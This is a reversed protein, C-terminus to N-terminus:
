NLLPIRMILAMWCSIIKFSNVVDLGSQKQLGEKISTETIKTFDPKLINSAMAALSANARQHHGLMSLTIDSITTDKYTFTFARGNESISFDKNIEFTPCNLNKAKQYFVHQVDPAM